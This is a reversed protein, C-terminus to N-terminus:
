LRQDKTTRRVTGVTGDVEIWEGDRILETIGAIGAVAPLRYERAIVAGHSLVGGREMVLARLRGFVPTWAPDTSPTVLIEGASVRGLDRPDQVVRARGRASGASVGRGRWMDHANPQTQRESAVAADGLLFFPYATARANRDRAAFTQWERKRERVARTLEAPELEIQYYRIIEAQLAYFIDSRQEIIGRAALDTGLILFARRTVALSKQWYYRQDERLQAYKRALAILPKLVIEKFRSAHTADSDTDVVQSEGNTDAGALLVLLQTPDDRFTPQALDLSFSRHGHRRLFRALADATRSEAPDLMEGAAIRALLRADVPPHLHALAALEENVERTKNPAGSIWTQARAGALDFLVKYTLDAYTLSWRHIHLLGADLQHTAEVVALVEFADTAKDLRASLQGLRADHYRTYRDWGLYNLPTTVVPDRLLHYALSFLFRPQLVSRPYPARKRYGVDGGPFYRVADTPLLLDPFPKYFIQFIRANIYPHGNWLRTAPITEAEPFGMVRLPDRLALREFLAGVFSWGLPSVVTTFRENLFGATWLIAHENQM